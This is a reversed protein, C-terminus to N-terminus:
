NRLTQLLDEGRYLFVGWPYYEDAIIKWKRIFDLLMAANEKNNLERREIDSKKLSSRNSILYQEQAKHKRIEEIIQLLQSRIIILNNIENIIIKRSKPVDVDFHQEIIEDGKTFPIQMECFLDLLLKRLEDYDMEHGLLELNVFSETGFMSVDIPQGFNIKNEFFQHYVKKFSSSDKAESQAKKRREDNEKIMQNRMRRLEPSDFSPLPPPQANKLKKSKKIKEFLTKEGYYIEDDEEVNPDHTKVPTVIVSNSSPSEMQAMTILINEINQRIMDDKLQTNPSSSPKNNKLRKSHIKRIKEDYITRRSSSPVNIFSNSLSADYSTELNDLISDSMLDNVLPRGSSALFVPRGGQSLNSKATLPRSRSSIPRSLSSDFSAEIQSFSLKLYDDNRSLRSTNPRKVFDNKNQSARIKASQTKRNSNNLSFEQNNIFQSTPASKIQYRSREIFGNSDEDDHNM